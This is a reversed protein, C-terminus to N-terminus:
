SRTRAMAVLVLLLGAVAVVAALLRVSDSNWSLNSLTDRWQPWPL